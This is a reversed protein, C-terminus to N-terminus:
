TFSKVPGAYEFCGKLTGNTSRASCGADYKLLRYGEGGDYRGPTFKTLWGVSADFGKPGLKSVEAGFSDGNLPGQVKNGVAQLFSMGDCYAQAYRSLYRTQFGIVLQKKTYIDICKSEPGPQPFVLQTEETDIVPNFGIAIAGAFMSPDVARLRFAPGNQVIRLNDFSTLSMKPKYNNDFSTWLFQMVNGASVMSVVHTIGKAAFRPSAAASDRSVTDQSTTDFFVTDVAEVGSKKLEAKLDEVARKYADDGMSLIGIKAAKADPGFFKEDLLLKGYTTGVRDIAPLNVMYGYPKMRELTNTDLPFSGAAELFLMKKKAFCEKAASGVIVSQSIVAFVKDDDGFGNCIAAATRDNSQSLDFKRIVPVVKRGAVGGSANIADVVANIQATADGTTSPLFGAPSGFAADMFGVKITTDTIGQGNEGSGVSKAITTAIAAATTPPATTAVTTATVRVWKGASGSKKCNLTAGGATVTKGVEAKTCKSSCLKGRRGTPRRDRLANGEV